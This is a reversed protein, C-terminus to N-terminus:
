IGLHYFDFGRIRSQAVSSIKKPGRHESLVQIMIEILKMELVGRTLNRHIRYYM